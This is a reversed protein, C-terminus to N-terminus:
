MLEFIVSSNRRLPINLSSQDHVQGDGEHDHDNDSGDDDSMVM